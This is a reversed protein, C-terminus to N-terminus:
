FMALFSATTGSDQLMRVLEMSITLPMSRAVVDVASIPMSEDHGIVHEEELKASSNCLCGGRDEIALRVM